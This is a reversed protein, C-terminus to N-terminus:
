QHVSTQDEDFDLVLENAHQRLCLGPGASHGSLKAWGSLLFADSLSHGRAPLIVQM